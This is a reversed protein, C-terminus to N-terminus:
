RRLDNAKLMWRNSRGMKKAMEQHVPRRLASRAADAVMQVEDCAVKELALIVEPSSERAGWLEECAHMRIDYHLSLLKRVQSQLTIM